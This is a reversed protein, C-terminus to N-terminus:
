ELIGSNIVGGMIQVLLGFLRLSVKILASMPGRLFGAFCANRCVVLVPVNGQRWQM